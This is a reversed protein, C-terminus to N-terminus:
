YIETILVESQCSTIITDSWFNSVPLGKPYIYYWTGGFMKRWFKFQCLNFKLDLSITLNKILSKM